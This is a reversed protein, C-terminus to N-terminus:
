APVAFFSTQEAVQMVKTHRRKFHMLHPNARLWATHALQALTNIFIKAKLKNNNNKMREDDFQLLRSIRTYAPLLLKAQALVSFTCTRHWAGPKHGFKHLRRRVCLVCLRRYGLQTSKLCVKTTM